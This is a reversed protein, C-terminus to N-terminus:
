FLSPQFPFAPDPVGQFPDLDPYNVRTLYLGHPPLCLRNKERQHHKLAWRLDDIRKKGIQVMWIEGLLLRVMKYLFGNGEVTFALFGSGYDKAEFRSIERIMNVASSGSASFSTFDHTGVFLQVCERLLPWNITFDGPCYVYHRLFVPFHSGCYIWYMYQKKKADKRADFSFPAELLNIVRIDDPLNANLARFLIPLPLSSTTKCNAVQGLAHVGADTRGSARLNVPHNLITSLVDVLCAQVNRRGPQIQWGAYNTGDYEIVMLLNRQAQVKVM